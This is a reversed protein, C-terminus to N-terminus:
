SIAQHTIRWWIARVMIQEGNRKGMCLRNSIAPHGLKKIARVDRFPMGVKLHMMMRHLLFHWIRTPSFWCSVKYQSDEPPWVPPVACEETLYSGSPDSNKYLASEEWPFWTHRQSKIEQSPVLCFRAVRRLLSHNTGEKAWTMRVSKAQLLHYYQGLNGGQPGFISKTYNKIFRHYTSQHRLRTSFDIYFNLSFSRQNELIPM